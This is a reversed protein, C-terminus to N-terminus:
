EMCDRDSIVKCPAAVIALNMGDTRGPFLIQRLYLALRRKKASLLYLVSFHIYFLKTMFIQFCISHLM